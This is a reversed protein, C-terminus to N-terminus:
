LGYKDLLYVLATMSAAGLELERKNVTDFVDAATHHVDFYRQSDPSYGSLLGKMGKLPGIDAGSGGRTISLGYPELLPEYTEVKEFFRGFVADDGDFSFGRPTFGGADSEIACLHFENKRKAEKAYETGGRLGNEENMFLVCRITHRPQYGLRRLNRLVDMSQVCGAGDDHAGHGVDWSDLHGGVLIIDGPKEWGRIEGIVNYSQVDPLTQCNMKMFIQVPKGKELLASLREADNTSIAAAPILTFASDYRLTGTHPYDDLRLGMSRVLVGVAGYKAARSAGYVRQDVAGGYAEFTRIRTPDMPRNYFVIKGRLNREGLQDLAEWSNVEVVEAQLGKAPTSVSGGLALAHLSFNDAKNAAGAVRVQEAEGRVWRPVMVPQLWVSDLGLTDLMAETWIVAKEAGTSGSLRHGIQLSLYELWPYCRGDTLSQNYIKRIYAADADREANQATLPAILTPAVILAFVILLKFTLKSWFNEM